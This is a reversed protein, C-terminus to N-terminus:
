GGQKKKKRVMRRSETVHSLVHVSWSNRVMQTPSFDLGLSAEQSPRAETNVTRRNDRKDKGKKKKITTQQDLKSKKERKSETGVVERRKSGQQKDGDPSPKGM